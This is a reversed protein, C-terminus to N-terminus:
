KQLFAPLEHAMAIWERTGFPQDTVVGIEYQLNNTIAQIEEITPSFSVVLRWCYGTRELTSPKCGVGITMMWLSLALDSVERLELAQPPPIIGNEVCEQFKERGVARHNELHRFAAHCLESRYAMPRQAIENLTATSGPASNHLYEVKFYAAMLAVYAGQEASLSQLDTFVSRGCM